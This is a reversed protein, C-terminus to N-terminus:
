EEENHVCEECEIGQVVCSDDCDMMTCRKYCCVRCESVWLIKM